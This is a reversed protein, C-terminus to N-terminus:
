GTVLRFAPDAGTPEICLYTSTKLLYPQWHMAHTGTLHGCLAAIPGSHAVAVVSSNVTDDANVINEEFWEVIRNQMESTTEGGPPRYTDPHSILHHFHEPDCAYADDWTLGQWDGYHREQLRPDAIVTAPRDVQHDPRTVAAAIKAATYKTRTLGSHFIKAPEFDAAIRIALAVSDSEGRDSLPVDLAGYCIGQYAHDVEGHRILILTPTKM